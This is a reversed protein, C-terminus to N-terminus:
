ACKRVTRHPRTRLACEIAKNRAKVQERRDGKEILTKCIEEPVLDLNATRDALDGAHGLKPGNIPRQYELRDNM